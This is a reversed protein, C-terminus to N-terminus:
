YTDYKYNRKREFEQQKELTSESYDKDSMMDAAHMLDSKRATEVIQIIQEDTLPGDDPEYALGFHEKIIGGLTLGDVHFNCHAVECCERVILEAHCNLLEHIQEYDLKTWTYPVAKDLAQGALKKIRENM